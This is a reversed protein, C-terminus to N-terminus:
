VGYELVTIEARAGFRFPLTSTGFGKSVYLFPKEGNYWGKVYGGSKLPLFPIFPKLRVQGGHTHGAFIYQLNIQRSEPREANITELEQLAEEQQLPSHVLLLHNEERGIGRVAVAFRSEEEIFDELGSITFSVGDIRVRVTKDALLRGGAREVVKRLTHQSVRNKNDHNGPIVFLPCLNQLHHLFRSAPAPTGHEDILDGTILILDPHLAKVKQVLKRHFPWFMKKFHLDSLLVIRVKNKSVEKGIRFRKTRFFFKEGWWADVLLVVAAALALGAGLKGYNTKTHM